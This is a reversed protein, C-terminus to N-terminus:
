IKSLSIDRVLQHYDLAPGVDANHEVFEIFKMKDTVGFILESSGAIGSEVEEVTVKPYVVDKGPVQVYGNIVPLRRTITIDSLAM